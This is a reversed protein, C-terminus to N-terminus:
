FNEHNWKLKEKFFLRLTKYKETVYIKNMNSVEDVKL